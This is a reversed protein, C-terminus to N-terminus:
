KSLLLGQLGCYTPIVCMRVFVCVYVCVIRCGITDDSKTHGKFYFDKDIQPVSIFGFKKTATIQDALRNM